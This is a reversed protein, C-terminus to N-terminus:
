LGKIHTYCKHRISSHFLTYFKAQAFPFKTDTLFPIGPPVITFFGSSLTPSTLSSPQIGLNPLHGPPPCPLESWNEQRSFGLSLPAQHDVIWLTVFLRVCSFHSLLCAFITNMDKPSLQVKLNITNLCKFFICNSRYKM